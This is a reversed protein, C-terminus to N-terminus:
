KLEIALENSKISGITASIKAVGKKDKSRVIALAKGNHTMVNKANHSDVNMEWGNDVAIIEANAGISFSVMTDLNKIEVGKDDYLKVIVHAVDYNDAKLMEKDSIVEIRSLKGTTALIYEDAIKNNNYGVVKLEGGKYPVKWKIINDDESFDALAQRGLSLGNLFLEAEECNTYAQVIVDEGEAYNWYENVKYWEWLRLKDWVPPATLQLDFKWGSKETYSFESESATSTVMYVKPKPNWLCEFFHGRPNKFGAFDFLSINLGKRPWPGAEGLYAFGTWVFIGAM